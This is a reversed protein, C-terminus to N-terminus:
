CGDDNDSLEINAGGILVGRRWDDVLTQCLSDNGRVYVHSTVNRSGELGDIDTLLPNFSVSLIRPVFVVGLLGDVQTLSANDDVILWGGLTTLNAFADLDTLGDNGDVTLSSVETLGALPSLDTLADNDILELSGDLGGPGSVMPVLQTLSANRELTLGGLSVGELGALTTVATAQLWLDGGVETLSTLEALSDVSNAELLLFRGGVRELSALPSLDTVGPGDITLRGTIEVVGVLADIDAQTTVVVDGLIVSPLAAVNTAACSSADVVQILQGCATAPITPSMSLAGVADAQGLV